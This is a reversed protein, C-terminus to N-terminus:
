AEVSERLRYKAWEGAIWEVGKPTFRCDNYAHESNRSVGAKIAFRGSDIHPQYATLKGALRYMVKHDMLFIRFDTENAKLLKCVERFGKLGESQVYRGVFEVAPRAQEIQAQQQEIQEAQKAALMLASSLTQPIVFTPQPTANLVHDELATMRDYVKAQLEYSYSMAMLCAERKQFRYGRRSRGYGDPLDCEFSHCGDGLVKPVKALFNAHTLDPEKRDANIFDVLELSTMTPAQITRILDM